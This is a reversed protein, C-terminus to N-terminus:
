YGDYYYVSSDVLIVSPDVEAVASDVVSDDYYYQNPTSDDVVVSDVVAAASDVYAALSDIVMSEEESNDRVYFDSFVANNYLIVIIMAVFLLGVYWWFVSRQTTDVYESSDEVEKPKPVENTVASNNFDVFVDNMGYYIDIKKINSKETVIIQFPHDREKIELTYPTRGFVEYESDRVTSGTPSSTIVIKQVKEDSRTDEPLNQVSNQVPYDEANHDNSVQNETKEPEVLAEFDLYNNAAQNEYSKILSYAISNEIQNLDQSNFTFILNNSQISNDTKAIELASLIMAFFALDKNHLNVFSDKNINTTEFEPIYLDDLFTLVLENNANVRITKFTLNGHAFQKVKLQSSLDKLDNQLKSVLEPLFSINDFYTDLSISQQDDLLVVSSTKGNINIENEKFELKPIFSLNYNGIIKALSKYRNEANKNLDTFCVLICEKGDIKCKVHLTEEGSFM